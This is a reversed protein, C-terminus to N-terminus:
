ERILFFKSGICKDSYWVEIRWKGTTNYTLQANDGWGVGLELTNEDPRCNIDVDYTFGNDRNHDLIKGSPDILKVGLTIRNEVYGTYKIRAWLYYLKARTIPAGWPIHVIKRQRDTSTLEIDHVILPYAGVLEKKPKEVKEVEQNCVRIAERREYLLAEEAQEARLRAEKEKQIAAALQKIRTNAEDRIATASQGPKIDLPTLDQPYAILSIVTFCGCLALFKMSNIIGQTNLSIIKTKM